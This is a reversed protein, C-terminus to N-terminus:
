TENPMVGIQKITDPLAALNKREILRDLVKREATAEKQREYIRMFQARATNVERTELSCLEMKGFAEVAAKVLPHSYDWPKYLHCRKVLSMAEQWAEAATPATEARSRDYLLRAAQRIENVSPFFTQTKIIYEIAADLLPLPMDDLCRAYVVLGGSDIKNAPYAVILASLLKIVAAQKENATAAIAARTEAAKM